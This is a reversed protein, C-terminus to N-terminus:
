RMGLQEKGMTQYKVKNVEMDLFREVSIITTLDNQFIMNRLPLHERHQFLWNLTITSIYLTEIYVKFHWQIFSVM